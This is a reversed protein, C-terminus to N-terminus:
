HDEIADYLKNEAAFCALEFAANYEAEKGVIRSGIRQDESHIPKDDNLSFCYRGVGISYPKGNIRVLSVKM